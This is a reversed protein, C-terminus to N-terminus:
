SNHISMLSVHLLVCTVEAFFLQLFLTGIFFSLMFGLSATSCGCGSGCCSSPCSCSCNEDGGCAAEPGDLTRGKYVVSGESSFSLSLWRPEGIMLLLHMYSGDWEVVVWM